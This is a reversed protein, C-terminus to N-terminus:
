HQDHAIGATLFGYSNLSRNSDETGGCRVGEDRDARHPEPNVHLATWTAISGNGTLRTGQQFTM